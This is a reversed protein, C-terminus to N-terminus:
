TSFPQKEVASAAPFQEQRRQRIEFPKTKCPLEDQCVVSIPIIFVWDM